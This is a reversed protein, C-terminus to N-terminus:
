KNISKVTYKEQLTMGTHPEIGKVISKNTTEDASIVPSAKIRSKWKRAHKTQKTQRLRYKSANTHSNLKKM